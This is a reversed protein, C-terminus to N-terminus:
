APRRRSQEMALLVREAIANERLHKRLTTLTPEIADAERRVEVQERRAEDLRRQIRTAQPDERSTM